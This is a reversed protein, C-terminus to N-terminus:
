CKWRVIIHQQKSNAGGNGRRHYTYRSCNKSLIIDNNWKNSRNIYYFNGIRAQKQLAKKIREEYEHLFQEHQKWVTLFEERICYFHMRRVRAVICCDDAKPLDIEMEKMHSYVKLLNRFLSRHLCQILPLISSVRQCLSMNELRISEMNDTFASFFCIVYHDHAFCMDMSFFVKCRQPQTPFTPSMERILCKMAEINERM